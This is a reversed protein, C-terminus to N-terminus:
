IKAEAMQMSSCIAQASIKLLITALGADITVNDGDTYIYDADKGGDIMVDAAFNEITDKGDGGLISSEEGANYLYDNGKNGDLTVSLGYNELSDNGALANFYEEDDYNTYTDAKPSFSVKPVTVTNSNDAADVTTFTMGKEVDKLTISGKDINIVFDSGNLSTSAISGSLIQITDNENFSNIIDKGDGNSYQYIHGVSDGYINDNGKGGYVTVNEAAGSLSIVDNGTGANISVEAATNTINDNGALANVIVKSKTNNIKDAKATGTTTTWDDESEGSGVSVTVISGNVNLTDAAFDSLLISGSGVSVVVDKNERTAQYAGTIKLSDKTRYGVIVDNGDGNAYVFASGGSTSSPNNYITDNGKGGTITGHTPYDYQSHEDELKIIDNGTGADISSGWTTVARITDNGDGALVTVYSNNFSISDDGAGGNIKVGCAASYVTDNDDGAYIVVDEGAYYNYIKDDGAGTNILIGPTSNYVIDPTPDSSYAPVSVTKGNINLTDMGYASLLISGSGVSVTVNKDDGIVKYDGTIKLSDNEGYGYITDNGDGEVYEYVRTNNATSVYSRAQAYIQDDGKGANVTFPNGKGLNIVDNGVGGSISGWVSTYITDDGDGLDYTNGKSGGGGITIFDNGDGVDIYSNFIDGSVTDDGEGALITNYDSSFTGHISDNGAGADILVYDANENSITDDGTGGSITTNSKTNKINKGPEDEDGVINLKMNASDLVTISGDGVRIITNNGSITTSYKGSLIQIQNTERYGKITDNGDGDSYQYIVSDGGNGALATKELNYIYDNGAGGIVTASDGYENRITDNGEGGIFITYPAAGYYKTSGYYTSYSNVIYDNGTGGDLTNNYGDDGGYNYVRDDGSGGYLSSYRTNASYIYDSGEGGDVTINARRTVVGPTNYKNYINDNGAGANIVVNSSYNTVNDSGDFANITVNVRDNTIKDVNKTGNIINLNETNGGVYVGNEFLSQSGSYNKGNITVKRASDNSNITVSSKGSITIDGVTSIAKGDAYGAGIGVGDKESTTVVTANGSITINGVTASAYVEGLNKTSNPDIYGGGIGSAYEKATATVNANDTITINGVINNRVTNGGNSIKGNGIAAGNNSNATVVANGGILINNLSAAYDGNTGIAAGTGESTSNVVANGNITINASASHGGIGTAGGISTVNANGTITINGFKSDVFPHYDNGIGSSYSSEAYVKGGNILINGISAANSAGIGAGFGGAIANITGGNITINATSNSENFDSGIAASQTSSKISISSIGENGGNGINTENSYGMIASLSGDGDITLGGGVNIASKYESKTANLLNTGAITLKNSTGSGFKIINAELSSTINLDKIKLDASTSSTVISVDSFNAGKGDITVADTTKIKITGSFGEAITYTGAETITSNTSSIVKEVLDGSSDDAAQKALYHLLMYGAAYVSEEGTGTNNVNLASNLNSSNGALNKILDERVDDIGHTLEAMGEIIFQPLKNDNNIKAMMIAHTLEHAMTRDLYYTGTNSGQGNVDSALLNNFRGMNVTLTLSSAQFPSGNTSTFKGNVYALTASSPKNEFQLTITKVTADSNKFSYGYSEEILNLSEEIWWSYLGQVVTQQAKTLTSKAPIIVTLGGKTFSTGSPYSAAGSEPVVDEANKVTSGGMDSGTIAGTDENDLIIGCYNKLFNDASGATNCDNIMQNILAQMGTFNSCAKVAADLAATGSLSTTDLAAMFKKIVEQQSTAM